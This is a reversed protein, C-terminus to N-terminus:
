SYDRRDRIQWKKFIPVGFEDEDVAVYAVTKFLKIARVGDLTEMTHTICHARAFQEDMWSPIGERFFHTKGAERETFCGNLKAISTAM